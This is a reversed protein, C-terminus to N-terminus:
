VPDKAPINPLFSKLDIPGSGKIGSQLLLDNQAHPISIGHENFLQWIKVYVDSKVKSVGNRPDKIWVRVEFEIASDSFSRLRAGPEKNAVVRDVGETAEILLKLVLPVDSDLGARMPISLRVYSDSHSWNESRNTIFEENPILHEKGSRTRVMVCRAGLKNIEGYSKGQDLAIVDGPKITRDLLLIIGCIFNSVIKQLGFGIGVGIAGGFITFASLNIGSLSLSMLVSLTILTVKILKAFLEQNSRDINGKKKFTQELRTSAKITGWLLVLFLVLGKLTSLLSLHLEGINLAASEMMNLLHPLLGLVALLTLSYIAFSALRKLEAQIKFLAICRIALWATIFKAVVQNLDYGWGFERAAAVLTWQITALGIPFAISQMISKFRGLARSHSLWGGTVKKLLFYFVYAFLFGAITTLVQFLIHPTWLSELFVKTSHTFNM